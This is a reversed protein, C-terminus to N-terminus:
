KGWGEALCQRKLWEPMVELMIREANLYDNNTACPEIRAAASYSGTLTVGEKPDENECFAFEHTIGDRDLTAFYENYGNM